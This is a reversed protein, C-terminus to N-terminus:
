GSTTSHKRSCEACLGLIAFHKPDIAFGLKTKAARALGRFMDDPAGIM